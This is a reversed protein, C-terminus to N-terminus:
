VPALEKVVTGITPSLPHSISGLVALSSSLVCVETVGMRSQGSSLCKQDEVLALHLPLPVCATPEVDPVSMRFLLPVYTAFVGLQTVSKM